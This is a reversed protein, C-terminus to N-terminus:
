KDKKMTRSLREVLTLAFKKFFLLQIAQPSRDLLATSIKLLVCDTDAVVTAIRPQGGIGAMEGFCEGVDIVAIDRNNRRVKAKGNLLVYFIDDIQGEALILGGRRVTIINSVGLLERIQDQSFDRFFLNHRLFEVLDMAKENEVAGKLSRYAVRLDYAFAMCNQYREKPDKALAKHTIDGFISPLDPRISLVSVPEENSIKYLVSFDNDGSFAKEGTLVEYLVCGLSFVDSERGVVQDKLQEPSMYSPTGLIGLEVTQETMQSIGFDAVKIAGTKDLMINSPKIDKHIVGKKHAYDLAICVGVIIEVARAVPLLANKQCFKVLSTGEIYEMTMYCYRDHVGVDYVAVIYPHNLRGASQAEIFFRDRTKDDVPFSMKVAVHRKIFPDWGLYVTGASGRGLKGVIEYRGVTKLDSPDDPVPLSTMGDEKGPGKFEPESGEMPGFARPEEEGTKGHDAL